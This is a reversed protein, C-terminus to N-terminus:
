CRTGSCALAALASGATFAPGFAFYAAVAHEGALVAVEEGFPSAGDVVLARLAGAAVEDAAPQHGAAREGFGEAGVADAHDDHGARPM